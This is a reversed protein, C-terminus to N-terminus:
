TQLSEEKDRSKKPVPTRSKGEGQFEKLQAIVSRKMDPDEVYGQDVAKKYAALDREYQQIAAVSRNYIKMFRQVNPYGAERVKREFKDKLDSREVLLKALEKNTAM